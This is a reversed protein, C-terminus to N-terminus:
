CALKLTLQEDKRHLNFWKEERYLQVVEVLMKTNRFNGNESVLETDICDLSFSIGTSENFVNYSENDKETYSNQGSYSFPCCNTPMIFTARKAVEFAVEAVKFAANAGKYNCGEIPQMSAVNGFPPNSIATQINMSKLREIVHKDTVSGCIWIANPLVKRGVKVFTENSEVCVLDIHKFRQLLQFGLMGIGACLDVVKERDNPLMSDPSDTVCMGFEWALDANTFFSGSWGINCVAEELFNALVFEREKNTLDRELEVLSLAINHQKLAVKSVKSM